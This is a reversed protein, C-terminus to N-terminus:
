GQEEYFNESNFPPVPVQNKRPCGESNGQDESEFPERPLEKLRSCLNEVTSIELYSAGHKRGFNGGVVIVTDNDTLKNKKVLQRLSSRVFEMSSLSNPIYEPYVGFTLALLRVTKIDYCMAHIIKRGRFGAMNRITRGSSTDAIIAKAKLKISAEVASRTLYASIETSLQLIPTDHLDGRSKEVEKAIKAMTRVTEVPYKGYATEGSLMIADTKSYIANAVDSVEARTPRPEIIMSHLMQTAIIVPKRRDICKKIIMKQIGPIKEYPIEIALDGRAVMIGYAHELIEDIHEVGEQNEIKAIIKVPSERADLIEQVDLVDQKNRVFSHAIFDLEHDAAFEIYKKDKESLSPLRFREGPVNVSKRAKIVGSNKVECVLYGNEKKIVQLETTGDDILVFSGEKVEDFFGNYSVHFNDKGSKGQPDSGIRVIDGSKVEIAETNPSTRIEPGKTDLLLAIKESVLRANQIIKLTQEPSQHATNLRIVNMGAKYLERLFEQECNLDSITAVIKTKKKMAIYAFSRKIRAFTYCYLHHFCNKKLLAFKHTQRTASGVFFRINQDFNEFFLPSSLSNTM